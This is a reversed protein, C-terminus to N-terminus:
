QPQYYSHLHNLLLQVDNDMYTQAKSFMRMPARIREGTTEKTLRTQFVHKYGVLEDDETINLLDSQYDELKTLPVKKTSVVTSFYAEIGNNKLAGKVPVKVDFAMTSENYVALTHALVIVNIKVSAIKDQFLMKFYQQFNGWAQQGNASGVIYKSEYMDLLFTLMDIVVTHIKVTGNRPHPITYDNALLYDFMDTIAYPDTVTVDSFNNRFPLKKGAECNLYLVGPHDQLNELSSSKGTGSEGSILVMYDNVGSM